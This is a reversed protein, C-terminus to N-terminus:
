RPSSARAGRRAGGPAGARRPAPRSRWGRWRTSPGCWRRPAPRSTPSRTTSRTPSGPRWRGWAPWGAPWAGAGGPGRALAANCRRRSGPAPRWRRPPGGCGCWRASGPRSSGSASRSTSTTTPAPAELGDARATADAVTTLLVFPVDALGPLPTSGGAWSTARCTRPPRPRGGGRRPRLGAARALAEEGSAAALVEHDPELSRRLRARLTSSDACVLVRPPPSPHGSAM